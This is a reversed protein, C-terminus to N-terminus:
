IVEDYSGEKTCTAAVENERVPDEPTHAKKSIVEQEVLMEGCVSCKKGETLGTSTCNAKWVRFSKKLIRFNRSQKAKERFRM